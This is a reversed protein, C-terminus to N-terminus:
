SLLWTTYLSQAKGMAGVGAWLGLEPATRGDRVEGCVCSVPEQWIVMLDSREVKLPELTGLSGGEWYESHPPAILLM